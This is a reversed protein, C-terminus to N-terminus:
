PYTGLLQLPLMSVVKRPSCHEQSFAYIIWFFGGMLGIDGLHVLILLGWAHLMHLDHRFFSLGWSLSQTVRSLKRSRQWAAPSTKHSKSNRSSVATGSSPALCHTLCFLFIPFIPLFPFSFAILYTPSTLSWPTKAQEAEGIQYWLTPFKEVCLTGKRPPTSISSPWYSFPVLSM